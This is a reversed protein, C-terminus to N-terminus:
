LGKLYNIFVVYSGCYVNSLLNIEVRFYVSFMYDALCFVIRCLM